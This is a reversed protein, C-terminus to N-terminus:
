AKQKGKIAYFKAQKRRFTEVVETCCQAINELRACYADRTHVPNSESRVNAILDKIIPPLTDENKM